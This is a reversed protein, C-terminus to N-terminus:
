KGAASNLVEYRGLGPRGDMSWRFFAVDLRRQGLSLSTGCVISGAARLPPRPESGEQPWLELTARVQRGAADYQTSLLPERVQTVEGDAGAVAAVIEEDGHTEAGAPRTARLALLGGDSFAVAISRELSVQDPEPESTLESRVGLSAIEHTQNGKRLEGLVRCVVLRESGGRDGELELPEGLRSLELTGTLGDIEIRAAGEAVDMGTGGGSAALVQDHDFFVAAGSHHLTGSIGREPDAFDLGTM